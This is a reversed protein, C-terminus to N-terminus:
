LVINDEKEKEEVGGVERRESEESSAEPEAKKVKGGQTGIKLFPVLCVSVGASAVSFWFVASYPQTEDDWYAALSPKRQVSDFVATGVGLGLTMCLKAATQFIGGAVSQQRPPMSSMVYMNAVNFELDAGIVQIAFAPFCFSWYSSSKKNLALLLAALMYASSGIFMLLKNSVRHLILGAIINVIIGSVAMPLLHVATMLASMNWVKQFYLAIFFSAPTFSAFGLMLIGICLSFDRDKWISMPVIPDRYWLEWFVFAVMLLIGVILLALVYGTRWGEPATDGLSLAASFMGIGCVTLLTGIIDFRKVTQWNLPEKDTWDKPVTFLGVVTLLFYIIAILFFNARWGLLQTAVGGFITGFVFGLPNGGSFCAFAANKRRSPKEYAVGLIGVAPPVAAAAFVGMVGNLVDLTIGTKSFGAALSFISFLLFAGIFLTKRGICCTVHQDARSYNRM